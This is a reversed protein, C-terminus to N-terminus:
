KNHNILDKIWAFFEELTMDTKANNCIWCCTVSNDVTYGRLSDVRDIGNCKVEAARCHEVNSTVEKGGSVYANRVLRPSAGCYICTQQFLKIAQAKTLSWETKHLKCRQIYSNIIYNWTVTTPDDYKQNGHRM